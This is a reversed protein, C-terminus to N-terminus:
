DEVAATYIISTGHDKSNFNAKGHAMGFFAAVGWRSQYDFLEEQLILKSKPRMPLSVHEMVLSQAGVLFNAAVDIGAAGVSDLLPVKKSEKLVVGDWMGMMGKFIPNDLGRPMADRQAQQWATSEKLDRAALNHVLMCYIEEGGELRIPRIQPDALQARRRALSIIATSFTDAAGDVNLLSASHDNSPNNATTAGFLVRDSNEALWADKQVETAAGFIVTNIRHWDEFLLDEVRQAAWTTLADLAEEKLAFAGRRETLQGKSLVANKFIKATVSFDNFVLEEEQGELDSDDEVGKGDLNNRLPFTDQDGPFKNLNEKIQIISEMSTGMLPKLILKDAYERFARDDYQRAALQDGADIGSGPM